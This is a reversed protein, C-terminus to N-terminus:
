RHRLKSVVNTIIDVAQEIDDRSTQRGMSLRLSGQITSKDAGIAELVHNPKDDSANCAAGTAALVGNADLHHVLTEGDVHPFSVNVIGPTRNKSTSNIVAGEITGLRETLLKQLPAQRKSEQKYGTQAIELAKAFGVIAAPSESGSRLGREQGGGYILPELEVGHSVFLVGSQKPGYIKAGNLTLLDVGLLHCDINLYEAAASADTHLLLPMDVGRKSRDERVEEVCASIDRLPQVTGLESNVYGVSILCTNDTISDRIDEVRVTGRSDVPVISVESAYGRASEIVASHEVASILVEAEPHKRVVGGIALSISESAGATFVIESPKAGVLSGVKSRFNDIDTRIARAPTYLSSPNYFREAMFPRM